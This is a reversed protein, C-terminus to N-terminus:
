EKRSILSKLRELCVAINDLEKRSAKNLLQRFFDEIDLIFDNEMDYAKSTLKVKVIRRDEASRTREVFGASELRDVIGSANSDAFGMSAAISSIKMEGNKHLLSLVLIQSATLSWQSFYEELNRHFIDNLESLLEFIRREAPIKLLIV